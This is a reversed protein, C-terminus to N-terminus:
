PNTLIHTQTLYHIDLAKLSITVTSVLSQVLLCNAPKTNNNNTQQQKKQKNKQQQKKKNKKKEGYDRRKKYM